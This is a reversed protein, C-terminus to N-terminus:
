PFSCTSPNCSFTYGAPLGSVSDIVISDICAHVPFGGVTIMTDTKVKLQMVAQYPTGVIAHPLNQVTDPYTGPVNHTISTDPVCQSFAGSTMLSVATVLLITKM